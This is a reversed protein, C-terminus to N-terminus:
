RSKLVKQIVDIDEASTAYSVKELEPDFKKYKVANDIRNKEQDTLIKLNDQARVPLQM